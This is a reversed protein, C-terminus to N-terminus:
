RSLRFNLNKSGVVYRNVIAILVMLGVVGIKLALLLQYPSGFDLPPKGLTLATNILGTAVVLAVAFHGLGSFRRLALSAERRAQSGRLQLLTLLLPPLCGLWFGGSLLHVIQNLRHGWGWVGEQMAAHGVLGLSGLAAASLVATLPLKAPLKPALTGLLLAMLVLRWTWVQGFATDSLAAGVTDANAVDAWGAGAEGAELGLWLLATAVVVVVLVPLAWRLWSALSARLAPPALLWAFTSAGFLLMAAAFQFFRCVILVEAM